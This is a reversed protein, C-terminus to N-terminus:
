VSKLLCLQSMSGTAALDNENGTGLATWGNGDRAAPANAGVKYDGSLGTVTTLQDRVVTSGHAVYLGMGLSGTGVVQQLRVPARGFDVRIADLPSGDVRTRTITGGGNAVIGHSSSARVWCFNTYLPLQGGTPPPNTSFNGAGYPRTDGLATGSQWICDTLNLAGAPTANMQTIRDLLCGDLTLYAGQWEQTAGRCDFFSNEWIQRYAASGGQIIVRGVFHCFSFAFLPSPSRVFLCADSATLSSNIFKIGSFSFSDVNFIGFGGGDTQGTPNSGSLCASPEMIRAPLTPLTGSGKASRTITISGTTSIAVIGDKGGAQGSSYTSHFIGGKVADNAWSSRAVNLNYTIIQSDPDVVTSAVDSASLICDAYPITSLPQPTARVSVAGRRRFYPDVTVGVVQDLGAAAKIAPMTYGAPLSEGGLNTLDIVYRYGAPIMPPVDRVARQFTRYPLEPSGNGGQDSGTATAYIYRITPAASYGPHPVESSLAQEWERGSPASVQRYLIGSGRDILLQGVPAEVVGDPNGDFFPAGGSSIPTTM